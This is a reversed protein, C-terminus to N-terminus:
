GLLDKAVGASVAELTHEDTIGGEYKALKQRLEDNENILATNSEKLANIAYEMNLQKLQEGANLFRILTM